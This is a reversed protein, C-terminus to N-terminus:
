GRPSRSGPDESPTRQLLQNKEERTKELEQQTQAKEGELRQVKERETAAEQKAAAHEAALATKAQRLLEREEKLADREATREDLVVQSAALRAREADLAVHLEEVENTAIAMSAVMDAFDEGVASAVLEKTKAKYTANDAYDAESISRAHRGVIRTKIEDNNVERYQETEFVLVRTSSPTIIIKDLAPM